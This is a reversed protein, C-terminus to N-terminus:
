LVEFMLEWEVQDFAEEAELSQAAMLGRAWTALDTNKILMFFVLLWLSTKLYFTTQHPELSTAAKEAWFFIRCSRLFASALSWPCMVACINRLGWTGPQKTRKEWNVRRGGWCCELQGGENPGPNWHGKEKRFIRWKSKEEKECCIAGLDM